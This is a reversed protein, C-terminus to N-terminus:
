IKLKQAKALEETLIKEKKTLRNIENHITKRYFGKEPLNYYSNTYNKSDELLANIDASTKLTFNKENFIHLAFPAM